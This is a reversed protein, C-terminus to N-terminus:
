GVGDGVEGSGVGADRPVLGVVPSPTGGYTERAVVVAGPAAVLHLDSRSGSGDLRVPTTAPPSGDLPQTVVTLERGTDRCARLYTTATTTDAVRGPCAEVSLPTTGGTRPDLASTRGDAQELLPTAGVEVRATWPAEPRALPTGTEADFLGGGAMRASWVSGDPAGVLVVDFVEGNLPGPRVEHRWRERGSVEDLAVLAVVDGCEVVVPVTTRGRAPLTYRSGCGAPATWTWRVEGSDLDYGTVVDRDRVALTRTGPVLEGVEVLVSRLVVQWRVRGTGADLVVVLQARTDRTSGFAVVVARRDMSAAVAGVRAGPRAYRWEERGDPGNLGVVAGERLGVAVGHGAAVVGVVDSSPQWAWQRDGPREAVPEPASNRADRAESRVVLVEAGAPAGAAVVAVVLALGAGVPRVRWDRSRFVGVAVAVAGVALVPLDVGTLGTGLDRGLLVLAAVAAGAGLVAGAPRARGLGLVAAVVVGVALGISWADPGPRPVGGPLFPACAACLAGVLTLYRLM